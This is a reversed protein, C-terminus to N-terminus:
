PSSAPTVSASGGSGGGGCEQFGYDGALKSAGDSATVLATFATQFGELDGSAAADKAKRVNEVVTDLGGTIQDWTAQDAEPPSLAKLKGTMSEYIPLLQAFADGWDALNDQSPAGLDTGVPEAKSRADKCIADGQTILAQKTLRSGGGCASLLLVAVMVAVSPASRRVRM